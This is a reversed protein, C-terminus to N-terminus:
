LKYAEVRTLDQGNWRTDQICAVHISYKSFENALKLSKAELM